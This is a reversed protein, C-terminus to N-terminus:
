CMLLDIAFLVTKLLQRFSELIHTWSTGSRRGLSRSDDYGLLLHLHEFLNRLKNADTSRLQCRGAVSALSVCYRSLVNANMM